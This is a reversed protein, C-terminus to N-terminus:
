ASAMRGNILELFDEDWVVATISSPLDGFDDDEIGVAIIPGVFDIGNITCNYPLDLLRGEENCIIVVQPDEDMLTVTEIYGGVIKQFEHLKNDIETIVGIEDEPRKIIARITKKM